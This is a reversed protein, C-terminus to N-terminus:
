ISVFASSQNFSLDATQLGVVGDWQSQLHNWLGEKSSSLHAIAQVDGRIWGGSTGLM